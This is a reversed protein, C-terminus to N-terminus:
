HLLDKLTAHSGRRLEILIEDKPVGPYRVVAVGECYRDNVIVSGQQMADLTPKIVNDPDRNYGFGVRLVAVFHTLPDRAGYLVKIDAAARKRWSRYKATLVPQQHAKVCQKCDNASPPVRLSLHISGSYTAGTASLESTTM